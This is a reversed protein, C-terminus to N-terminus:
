RNFGWLVSQLRRVERGERGFDFPVTLPVTLSAGLSCRCVHM